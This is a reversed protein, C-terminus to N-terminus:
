SSFPLKKGMEKRGSGNEEFVPNAPLRLMEIKDPQDMQFVM